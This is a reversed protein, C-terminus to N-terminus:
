CCYSGISLTSKMVPAASAASATAIPLVGVAVATVIALIKKM